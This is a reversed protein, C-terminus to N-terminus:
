RAERLVALLRRLPGEEFAAPIRLCGGEPFELEYRGEAAAAHVEIFSPPKAVIPQSVVVATPRAGQEKALRCKWHSLSRLSVGASSAFASMTQGSRAWREVHRQWEERKSSM